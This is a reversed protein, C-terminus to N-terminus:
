FIPTCFVAPEADRVLRVMNYIRRVDGQPGFGAPYDAPDGTKPDSRQAGAGHVDMLTPPMEPMRMYGLAEGFAIYLAARGPLRGDLHTTSSWYFAYNQRGAEDNIVSSKFLPSIAASNTAQLSRNYDVISQLEKANPLRWDCFGAYNLGAAWTLAQPWDMRGDKFPGAKLYGSDVQMWVLQNAKDTITGNRNDILVNQGYDANGRVYRVYMRNEGRGPKIKPYGKIRGDAFNVGFVTEDGRMTRGAYETASWEQVDIPREGAARDGYHFDFIANIFPKGEREPMPTVGSFDMLSYLEKITPLRWDSQGALRLTAAGALADSWSTKVGLRQQWILGTNLDTVTGNGNDKYRLPLRAFYADQRAASNGACAIISGNTDYCRNQGTPAIHAYAAQISVFPLLLAIAPLWHKTKMNAGQILSYGTQMM